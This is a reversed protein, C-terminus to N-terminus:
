RHCLLQQQGELGHSKTAVGAGEKAGKEKKVKKDEESIAQQKDM